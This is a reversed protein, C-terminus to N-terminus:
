IKLIYGMGRVTHILEKADNSVQLKKRLYKVYTEVINSLGEYGLDWVHELIQTKTLVMNPNRMFYELLAYERSTLTITHNNRSATKTAPNLLVDAYSLIVPDNKKGRRLLARIRALIEGFSFPKIVYDDAGADLGAIKDTISDMATLILIPVSRNEDRIKKCITIGDVLPVMLDLIVLDYANVFFKELAEEGDHAVDVAYSEESLGKRLAEAIKREDEVVLIQMYANYSFSKFFLQSNRKLWKVHM